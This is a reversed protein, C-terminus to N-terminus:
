TVARTWRRRHSRWGTGSQAQDTRSATRDQCGGSDRGLTRTDQTEGRRIPKRDYEPVASPRRHHAASSRWLCSRIQAIEADRDPLQSAELLDSVEDRSLSKIQDYMEAVLVTAVGVKSGHLIAPRGEQLLLMEWYHSYHHEAGSANRSSGFDLMCYGSEILGEMLSRIADPSGGGIAAAQEDVVHATEVTRVAIDEDFPEDWVLQGIRWDAASTYKGIMDAFGAAIMDRPAATLTPLDAFIARPSHTLLTTKVGHIILPAGCPHLDM